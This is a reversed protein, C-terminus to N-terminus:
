TRPTRILAAMPPTTCASWSSSGGRRSSSTGTARPAPAKRSPRTTIADNSIRQGISTDIARVWLRDMKSDLGDLVQWWQCHIVKDDGRTVSWHCHVDLCVIDVRFAAGQRHGLDDRRCQVPLADDGIVILHPELWGKIKVPVNM